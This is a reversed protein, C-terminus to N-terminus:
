GKCVNYYYIKVKTVKSNSGLAQKFTGEENDFKDLPIEYYTDRTEGKKPYLNVLTDYTILKSGSVVEQGKGAKIVKESHLNYGNGGEDKSLFYYTYVKGQKVVGVYAYVHAYGYPSIVNIGSCAYADDSGVPVLYISDDGFVAIGGSKVLNKVTSIYTLAADCYEVAKLRVTGRDKKNPDVTGPTDCGTIALLLVLIILLKKM